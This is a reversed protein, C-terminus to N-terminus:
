GRRGRGCPRRRLPTRPLPLPPCRDCEIQEPEVIKLVPREAYVSVESTPASLQRELEVVRRELDEIRRGQRHATKFLGNFTEWIQDPM